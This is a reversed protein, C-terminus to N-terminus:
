EPPVVQCPLYSGSVLRLLQHGRLQYGRLAHGRLAYGRRAYGACLTVRTVACLAYGRLLLRRCSPPRSLPAPQLPRRCLLARAQIAMVLATVRLKASLTDLKVPEAGQREASLLVVVCHAHGKYCALMLPTLDEKNHLNPNAHRSLLLKACQPHGGTLAALLATNGASDRVADPHAGRPGELLASLKEVNGQNAYRFLPECDLAGNFAGVHSGELINHTDPHENVNIM